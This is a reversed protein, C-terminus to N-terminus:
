ESHSDIIEGVGYDLARRMRQSAANSSIGILDAVEGLEIGRPIKWYDNEYATALIDYQEDTLGEGGRELDPLAPNYLAKLHIDVDNEVCQRRFSALEKRDRFQFRFNWSDVTGTARLVDGGSEILPQVLSNIDPSWVIEFLFRGGLETLLDVSQTVPDESITAELAEKNGGEVWFLPIIGERLPVLRELEIEIDPYEELLRGLAFQDAPIEIDTIVVM